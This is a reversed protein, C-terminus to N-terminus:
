LFSILIRGSYLSLTRSKNGETDGQLESSFRIMHLYFSLLFFFRIIFSLPQSVVEVYVHSFFLFISQIYIEPRQTIQISVNRNICKYDYERNQKKQAECQM